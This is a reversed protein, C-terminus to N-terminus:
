VTRRARQTLVVIGGIVAIVVTGPEPVPSSTFTASYGQRPEAVSSTSKGGLVITYDGASMLITAEVVHTGNPELHSFYGVDEAWDINARNVYSHWNDVPDGDNNADAFAQPALDNDWGSYITMAPFLNNGAFGTPDGLNPVGAANALRFTVFSDVELKLAVWESNHTWGVPTEGAGFLSADEWAWAGVHRSVSAFDSGGLTVTWRYGIGGAQPDTPSVISAHAVPCLLLAAALLGVYQYTKM